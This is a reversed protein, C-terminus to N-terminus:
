VIVGTTECFEVITTGALKRVRAVAAGKAGVELERIQFPVIVAFGIVPGLQSTAVENYINSSKTHEV